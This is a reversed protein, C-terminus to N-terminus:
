EIRVPSNNSSGACSPHLASDRVASYHLVSLPDHAVPQLGKGLSQSADDVFRRLRELLKQFDQKSKDPHGMKRAEAGERVIAQGVKQFRWYLSDTDPSHNDASKNGHEPLQRRAFLSYMRIAADLTYEMSTFERAAKNFEESAETTGASIPFPELPVVV